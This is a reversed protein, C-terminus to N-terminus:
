VQGNICILPRTARGAELDDLATNVEQLTYTAELLPELDTLRNALIDLYRPFDRDPQSDGGWTGFLRKGLNFHFPNLSLSQGHRANGIIAASGGRARVAEFAQQMVKPIGSSEVALDVGGPCIKHLESMVDQRSGDITHDAGQRRALSLKSSLLDIAIIPSCGSMAAASIACLGIGGVGFVAISQGADAQLTNMVVGFGTPVACGLLAGLKKSFDGAVATVRSESVVTLESFTAVPGANVKRGKWDYQTGPVTSGSGGIWSLTVSDGVSVKSVGSGVDCVVGSAEHGLLHPLYKDEGRYGRCELLQTHCVGSYSTEVLVQGARLAPVEIEELLLPRGTEELIAAITKM